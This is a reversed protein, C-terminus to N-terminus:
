AKRVVEVVASIISDKEDLSILSNGTKKCWKDIDKKFGFDSVEILVRDGPQASKVANSLQLLPGPCQLGKANVRIEM